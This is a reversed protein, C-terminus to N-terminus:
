YLEDTKKRFEKKNELVALSELNLDGTITLSKEEQM